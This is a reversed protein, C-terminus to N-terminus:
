QLSKACPNDGGDLSKLADVLRKGASNADHFFISLPLLFRRSSLYDTKGAPLQGIQSVL